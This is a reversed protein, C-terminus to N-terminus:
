EGGEDGRGDLRVDAVGVMLILLSRISFQFRLRFVLAVVFWLLMGVLAVGVAAVASLVAYGKNWTPWQFRESLVAAGGVVLLGYILWNPTPDVALNQLM